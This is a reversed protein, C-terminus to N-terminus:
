WWRERDHCSSSVDGKLSFKLKKIEQRTDLPPKTFNMNMGLIDESSFTQDLTLYENAAHTKDCVRHRIHIISPWEQLKLAWRLLCIHKHFCHRLGRWSVSFCGCLRWFVTSGPLFFTQQSMRSGTSLWCHLRFKSYVTYGLFWQAFYWAYVNVVNTLLSMSGNEQWHM